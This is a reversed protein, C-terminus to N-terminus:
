RISAAHIKKPDIKSMPVAAEMAVKAALTPDIVDKGQIILFQTATGLVFPWFEPPQQNVVMTNRMINWYKWLLEESTHHPLHKQDIDPQGYSESGMTAITREFIETINPLPKELSKTAGGIFGWVSNQGAKNTALCENILNGTYFIKDDKTKVDIFADDLSILGKAVFGDRIAMQCSFGSMAGLATLATEIHVGQETSLEAILLNNIDNAVKEPSSKNEENSVAPNDIIQKLKEFFIESDLFKSKDTKWFNNDTRATTMIIQEARLPFTFMLLAGLFISLTIFTRKLTM